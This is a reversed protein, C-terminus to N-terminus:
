YDAGYYGFAVMNDGSATTFSKKYYEFDEGYMDYSYLEWEKIVRDFKEKDYSVFEKFEEESLDEKILELVEEKSLVKNNLEDLYDGNIWKDYDNKTLIQLSHVSSSNTEFTNLRVTRKM